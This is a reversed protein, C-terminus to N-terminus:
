LVADAGAASSDRVEAYFSLAGSPHPWRPKHPITVKCHGHSISGRPSDFFFGSGRSFLPKGSTEKRSNSGRISWKPRRM